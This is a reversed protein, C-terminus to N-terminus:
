EIYLTKRQTKYNPNPIKWGVKMEAKIGMLIEREKNCKIKDDQITKSM